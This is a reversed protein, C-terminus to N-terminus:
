EEDEDTEYDEEEDWDLEEENAEGTYGCVGVRPSNVIPLFMDEYEKLNTKACADCLAGYEVDYYGAAVKTAPKGCERCSIQPPNNRAMIKIDNDEGFEVSDGDGNKPMIGELEAVIKLALETTSGFDYEHFFKQGVKLVKSLEIDMDQEGEDQAFDILLQQIFISMNGLQEQMEPTLLNGM